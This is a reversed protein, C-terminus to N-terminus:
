NKKHYRERANKMVHDILQIRQKKIAESIAQGSLGQEIFLRTDIERCAEFCAKFVSIEPMEADEYGPRGRFDAESALLYYEFQQPNRFSDLAEIVELITSSRMEFLLHM